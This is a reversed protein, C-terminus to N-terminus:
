RSLLPSDPYLERFKKIQLDIQKADSAVGQHAGFLRFHVYEQFLKPFDATAELCRKEIAPRITKTASNAANMTMQSSRM